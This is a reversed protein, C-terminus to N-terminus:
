SGAASRGARAASRRHRCPTRRGPHRDDRGTEITLKLARGPKSRSAGPPPMTRTRKKRIKYVEKRVRSPLTLKGLLLASPLSETSDLALPYGSYFVGPLAREIRRKAK